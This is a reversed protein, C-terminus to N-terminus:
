QLTHAEFYEQVVTKYSDSIPIYTDGFKIRFRDVMPILSMHVIYSRHVRMFEPQPLFEDLKKMNMLSMVPKRDGKLFFRVYDKQGMIYLIDDLKIQVTKYESNVLIFRDKAILEKKKLTEIAKKM